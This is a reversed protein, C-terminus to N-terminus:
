GVIRKLATMALNVASQTPGERRVHAVIGRLKDQTPAPLKTRVLLEGLGGLALFYRLALDDPAQEIESVFRTLHQKAEQASTIPKVRVPPGAAVKARKEVIEEMVALAPDAAPIQMAGRRKGPATIWIEGLMSATAHFLHAVANPVQDHYEFVARYVTARVLLMMTAPMDQFSLATALTQATHLLDCFALAPDEPPERKVSPMAPKTSPLKEQRKPAPGTGAPPVPPLGIRNVVPTPKAPASPAPPRREAPAPAPAPPPPRPPPAVPAELAIEMSPNRRPKDGAPADGPDDRAPEVEAPAAGTGAFLPSLIAPLSDHKPPGAAPKPAGPALPVHPPQAVAVPKLTPMKSPPAGDEPDASPPPAATAGLTDIADDEANPALISPISEFLGSGMEARGAAAAVTRGAPAAGGKAPALAAMGVPRPLGDAAVSAHGEPTIRRADFSVELMRGYRRAWESLDTLATLLHRPRMATLRGAFRAVLLDKRLCLRIASIERHSIELAARMAPVRQRDPIRVVPADLVILNQGQRLSIVVGVGRINALFGPGEPLTVTRTNAVGEVALCHTVLRAYEKKSWAERAWELEAHLLARPPEPDFTGDKFPLPEASGGCVTCALGSLPYGCTSCYTRSSASRAM